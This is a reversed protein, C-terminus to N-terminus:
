PLHPPPTDRHAAFIRDLTEINTRIDLGASMRVQFDAAIRERKELRLQHRIGEGVEALPRIAAARVEALRAIAIGQGTPVPPTCEGPSGLAFLAAVLAPDWGGPNGESVWGTDGRRFRTATDDSNERVLREFGADDAAMAAVRLAEARRALAAQHEPDAKPSSRLLIVGGRRAAPISHRASDSEYRARVEAESVVPSEASALEREEFRAVVLHETASVVEPDQDFGAARAKALVTEFRVLDALVAEKTTGPGRRSLERELTSRRITRSGVTAVVDPGTADVTSSAEKRCATGALALLLLHSANLLFSRM